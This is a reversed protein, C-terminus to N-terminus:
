LQSGLIKSSEHEAKSLGPLFLVGIISNEFFILCSVPPCKDSSPRTRIFCKIILVYIFVPFWVLSISVLFGFQLKSIVVAPMRKLEGSNRRM